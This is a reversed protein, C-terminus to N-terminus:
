RSSRTTTLPQPASSGSPQPITVSRLRPASPQSNPQAVRPVIQGQTPPAVLTPLPALSIESAFGATEVVATQQSSLAAWGGVVATLSAVTLLIKVGPAPKHKSNNRTNM